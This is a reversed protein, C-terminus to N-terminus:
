NNAGSILDRAFLIKPAWYKSKTINDTRIGKSSTSHVVIIGDPTNEVVMAVHTVKGGKGSKSFFVLDGAKADELAVPVGETAQIKSAPSATVNYHSLCYSTFGSCDFGTHPSRGAYKYPIGEFTKAFDTMNMRMAMESESSPSDDPKATSTKTKDKKVHVTKGKEKFLGCSMQTTWVTFILAYFLIGHIYSKFVSPQM